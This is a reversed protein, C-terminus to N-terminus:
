TPINNAQSSVYSKTLSANQYYSALMSLQGYSTLHTPTYSDSNKIEKNTNSPRITKLIVSTNEGWFKSTSFKVTMDADYTSPFVHYKTLSTNALWGFTLM